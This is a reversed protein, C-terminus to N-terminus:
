NFISEEIKAYVYINAKAGSIGFQVEANCKLLVNQHITSTTVWFSKKTERTITLCLEIDFLDYGFNSPKKLPYRSFATCSCSSLFHWEHIVNILYNNNNIIIYINNNNNIIIYIIIFPLLAQIVCIRAFTVHNNKHKKYISSCFNCLTPM